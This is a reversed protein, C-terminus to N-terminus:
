IEPLNKLEEDNPLTAIIVPVDDEVNEDVTASTNDSESNSDGGASSIDTSGGNNDTSSNGNSSLNSYAGNDDTNNSEIWSHTTVYEAIDITKGNKDEVSVVKGNNDKTIINGESDKEVTGGDSTTATIVTTEGPVSEDPTTNNEQNGCAVFMLVIVCLLCLISYFKNKKM